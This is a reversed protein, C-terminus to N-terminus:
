QETAIRHVVVRDIMIFREPFAPIESLCGGGFQLPTIALERAPTDLVFVPGRVVGSESGPDPFFNPPLFWSFAHSVDGLRISVINDDIRTRHYSADIEIEYRGPPLPDALAKILTKGKAISHCLVAAGGSYPLAAQSQGIMRAYWGSQGLEWDAYVLIGDFDEGEMDAVPPVPGTEPPELTLEDDDPKIDGPQPGLFHEDPEIHVGDVSAFSQGDAQLTVRVNEWQTMLVAPEEANTGKITAAVVTGRLVIALARDRHTALARSRAKAPLALSFAVGPGYQIIFSNVQNFSQGVLNNFIEMFKEFSLDHNIKAHAIHNKIFAKKHKKKFKTLNHVDTVKPGKIIEDSKKNVIFYFNAINQKENYDFEALKIGFERKLKYIFFEFFKKSKTGAIDGPQKNTKIKIIKLKDKYKRKLEEGIDKKEFFSNDPNKLFDKCVKQFKSLTDLSLGALANRQKFTPDILVIPGQLKSENLERLVEQNSKYKKDIDIIIKHKNMDSKFGLSSNKM